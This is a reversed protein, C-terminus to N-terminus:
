NIRELSVRLFLLVRMKEEYITIRIQLATLEYNNVTVSMIAIRETAALGLYRLIKQM